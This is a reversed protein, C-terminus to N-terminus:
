RRGGRELQAFLVPLNQIVTIRTSPNQRVMAFMRGDPSVDYNSHPTATSMESADFLERRATVALTPAFALSASILMSKGAGTSRFFLERGDPGWMPESGGALSVRVEEGDRDLPRVYVEVTGSQDSTYALWRGDPSVEPYAEEFRTAVLPEVPGRGGNRIVAIDSRSDGRLSNGVTVIASGDRLWVGTYAVARNSVVSDVESARSLSTRYLTLAGGARTASAYTVHRGDPEWAADHGDRDFTLRTMAGNALDVRWVDRGEATTFDTLLQRGDRSFRPIHYNHAESTVPRALGSRDVVVITGGAAPLYAVTGNDSVAWQSGSGSALAVDTAITFATGVTKRRRVDFRVAEMTGNGLVYVLLGETYRMDVVDVSLLPVTAGTELDLISSPGFATGNPKRVVLAYRDGPLVQNVAYESLEPPLPHTVQGTPSIRAIGRKTDSSTSAWLTGDSAWALHQSYAVDLPLPKGEGGDIPFRYMKTQLANLAVFERGDPSIVPAGFEGPVGPLPAGEDDELRHRMLRPQGDVVDDYLLTRGDPSIGLLRLPNGTSGISPRLISLRSPIPEPGARLWGWAAFAGVILLATPWAFAMARAGRGAPARRPTLGHVRATGRMD